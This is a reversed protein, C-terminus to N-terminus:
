IVGGGLVADVLGHGIAEIAKLLERDALRAKRAFRAFPKNKFILV